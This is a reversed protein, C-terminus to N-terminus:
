FDGKAGNSLPVLFKWSVLLPSLRFSQRPTEIIVIGKM